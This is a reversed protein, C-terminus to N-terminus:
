SPHHENSHYEKEREDEEQLEQPATVSPYLDRYRQWNDRCYQKGSETICLRVDYGRNFTYGAVTYAGDGYFRKEVLLPREEGGSRYDRLRLCTKWSIYGYGDGADTDYHIGQDGRAYAHCLARWHWERLTGVPLTRSPTDGLGTRAVRRGLTTLRINVILESRSHLTAGESRALILGREELAKFTSGTGPDVMGADKIHQKLPTHGYMTNAYLIWRWEDAPRSRWDRATRAKENREQIQDSEYILTLYTQQRQNLAQWVAMSADTRM